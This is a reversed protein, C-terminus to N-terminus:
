ASQSEAMADIIVKLHYIESICHQIGERPLEDTLWVTEMGIQRAGLVNVLVDDIFLCREPNVKLDALVKHYSTLNPKGLFDCFRIDYVKDFFEAIGLIRLVDVVYEYPSNSFVVKKGDIQSLMERLRIDPRIFRKVDLNYAYKIYEEPNTRQRLIMGGLTTGYTKWYEKRLTAVQNLPLNLQERMFDDIRQDIYKLMGTNKAYLTNDLDFILYQLNM